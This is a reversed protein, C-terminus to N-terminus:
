ILRSGAYVLILLVVGCLTSNIAQAGRWGRWHRGLLLILFIVWAALALVTKPLLVPHQWLLAHYFYFSTILVATLLVFGWRNVLFLYSEMTEIPPWKRMWASSARKGRLLREQLALLLALAGAVALVVVTLMALAVHIPAYPHTMSLATSVVRDYLLQLAFM